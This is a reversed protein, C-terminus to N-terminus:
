KFGGISAPTPNWLFFTDPRRHSIQLGPSFRVPSPSLVCPVGGELLYLTLLSRRDRTWSLAQSPVCLFKGNSDAPARATGNAFVIPESPRLPLSSPNPNQAELAGACVCLCVILALSPRYRM